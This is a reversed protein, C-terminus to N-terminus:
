VDCTTLAGNKLNRSLSRLLSTKGSGSPGMIVNIKGPEFSTSISRLIVKRTTKHFFHRTRVEVEHEVLGLVVRPVKKMARRIPKGYGYESPDGSNKIRSACIEKKSFTLVTGAAILFVFAFCFSIGLGRLLWVSSFGLSEIIYSSTYPKCAPNSADHSLPCPWIGRTPSGSSAM